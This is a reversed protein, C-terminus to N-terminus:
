YSGVMLGGVTALCRIDCSVATCASGCWRGCHTSLVMSRGSEAFKSYKREQGPVAPDNVTVTRGIRNFLERSIPQNKAINFGLHELPLRPFSPVVTHRDSAATRSM